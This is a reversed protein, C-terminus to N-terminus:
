RRGCRRLWARVPGASHTPEAYAELTHRAPVRVRLFRAATLPYREDGCPAPRETATTFDVVKSVGSRLEDPADCRDGPSPTVLTSTVM